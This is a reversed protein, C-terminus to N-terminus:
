ISPHVPMPRGQGGLVLGIIQRDSVGLDLRALLQRHRQGCFVERQVLQCQSDAARKGM